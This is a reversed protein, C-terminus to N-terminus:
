YGDGVTEEGARINEAMIYRTALAAKEAWNLPVM